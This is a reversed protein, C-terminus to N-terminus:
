KGTILESKTLELQSAFNGTLMGHINIGLLHELM